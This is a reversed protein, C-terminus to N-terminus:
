FLPLCSLSLSFPNPNPFFRSLSVKQAFATKRSELESPEFYPEVSTIQIHATNADLEEPKVTNSHVIIKVEVGELKSQYLKHLRDKIEVLKTIKPEKYIFEQGNLEEFADGYFGVRYYSGLM